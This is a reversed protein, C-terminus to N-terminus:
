LVQSYYTQEAYSLTTRLKITHTMCICTFSNKTIV